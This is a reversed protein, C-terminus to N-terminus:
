FPLLGLRWLWVGLALQLAFIAPMGLTFARHRTKHHFVAMGLMAGPSAGLLAVAFLTRESIRWMHRVAFWKDLGFLVFAAVNIALLWLALLKM